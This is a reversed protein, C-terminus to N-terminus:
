LSETGPEDGGEDGDQDDFSERGAVSDLHALVDAGIDLIHQRIVTEVRDADRQRLADLIAVHRDAIQRLSYTAKLGSFLTWSHPNLSDWLRYVRKSGSAHCIQSHFAVDVSLLGRLDDEAARHRMRDILVALTALDEETVREVALRAAYVELHARLNYADRVDERSMQAVITGRRAQYEVLGDRELKRIAERIPARSIAMQRAIEAEVVREGPALKGELIADRLASYADEYLPRYPFPPSAIIKHNENVKAM